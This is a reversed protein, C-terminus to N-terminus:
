KARSSILTVPGYQGICYQSGTNGGQLVTLEATSGGRLEINCKVWGDAALYGPTSSPWWGGGYGSAIIHFGAWYIQDSHEELVFVPTRFLVQFTYFTESDGGIIRAKITCAANRGETVYYSTYPIRYNPADEESPRVHTVSGWCPQQDSLDEPSTSPMVTGINWTSSSIVSGSLSVISFTSENGITTGTHWVTNLCHREDNYRPAVKNTLCQTFFISNDSNVTKSHFDQMWTPRMSSTAGCTLNYEGLGSCTESYNKNSSQVKTWLKITPQSEALASFGILAALSIILFKIKRTYINLSLTKANILFKINKYKM